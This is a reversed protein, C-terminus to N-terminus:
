AGCTYPGRLPGHGVAQGTEHFRRSAAAAVRTALPRLSGSGGKPAPEPHSVTSRAVAMSRWGAIAGGSGSAVLPAVTPAEFGFPPRFDTCANTQPTLGSGHSAGSGDLRNSAPRARTGMRRSSRSTGVGGASSQTTAFVRSVPMQPESDFCTKPSKVSEYLSLASAPNNEKGMTM